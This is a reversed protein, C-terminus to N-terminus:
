TAAFSMIKDKKIASYYEMTYIYWMKRIWDDTSPCKPQKWTKAITFLAATFMRTCTDKELFIKTQIYAWSHSQQTM